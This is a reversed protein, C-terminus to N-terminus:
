MHSGTTTMFPILRVMPKCHAGQVELRMKVKTGSVQVDSLLFSLLRDVVQRLPECKFVDEELSSDVLGTLFPHKLIAPIVSESVAAWLEDRFSAKSM